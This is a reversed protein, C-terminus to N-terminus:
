FKWGDLCKDIEKNKKLPISIKIVEDSAKRNSIIEQKFDENVKNLVFYPVKINNNFIKETESIEILGNNSLCILINEIMRRNKAGAKGDISSYGLAEILDKRSFTFKEVNPNKNKKIWLHQQYKNKLYAYVKIINPTATDVLYKLTDLKVLVYEGATPNEFRYAKIGKYETEEIWGCNLWLKIYERVTDIKYPFPRKAEKEYYDIIKRATIESKFCYTDIEFQSTTAFSHTRMYGYILDNLKKNRFTEGECYIAQQPYPLLDKEKYGM